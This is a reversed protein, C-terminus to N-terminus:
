RRMRPLHDGREIMSLVGYIDGFAQMLWSRIADRMEPSMKLTPDRM